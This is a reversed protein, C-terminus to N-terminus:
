NCPFSRNCLDRLKLHNLHNRAFEFHLFNQNEVKANILIYQSSPSLPENCIICPKPLCQNDEVKMVTQETVPIIEQKIKRISDSPKAKKKKRRKRNKIKDLLRMQKKKLKANQTTKPTDRNNHNQILNFLSEMYHGMLNTFDDSDKEPVLISTKSKFFRVLHECELETVKSFIVM